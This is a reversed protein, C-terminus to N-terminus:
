CGTNPWLRLTALRRRTRGSWLERFFLCPSAVPAPSVCRGSTPVTSCFSDEDVDIALLFFRFVARATLADDDSRLVSLPSGCEWCYRVHTGTVNALTAFSATRAHARALPPPSPPEAVRSQKQAVKGIPRRACLLFFFRRGM